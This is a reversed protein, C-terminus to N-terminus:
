VMGDLHWEVLAAQISRWVVQGVAMEDWRVGTGGWRVKGHGLAAGNCGSAVGGWGLAVVRSSGLAVEYRSTRGM